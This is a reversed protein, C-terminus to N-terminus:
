VQVRVVGGAIFQDATQACVTFAPDRQELGAPLRQAADPQARLADAGDGFRCENQGGGFSWDTSFVEIHMHDIIYMQGPFSSTLPPRRIPGGVTNYSPSREAGM